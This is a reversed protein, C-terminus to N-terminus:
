ADHVSDHHLTRVTRVGPPESMCIDGYLRNCSTAAPVNHVEGYVLCREFVNMVPLTLALTLLAHHM